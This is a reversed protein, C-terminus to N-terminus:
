IQLASQGEKVFDSFATVNAQYAQSAALLDVMQATVNVNPMAVYGQADAGPAGPDYNLPFPSADSALGVVAVGGSQTASLPLPALVAMQARFPGGAPTVTTDVNALNDAIINMEFRQATLGSASTDMAAFIM